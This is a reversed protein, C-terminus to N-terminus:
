ADRMNIIYNKACTSGDERGIQRERWKGLAEFRKTRSLIGPEYEFFANVSTCTFVCPSVCM